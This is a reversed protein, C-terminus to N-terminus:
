GELVSLFFSFPFIFITRLSLIIILLLLFLSNVYVFLSRGKLKFSTTSSSHNWKLSDWSRGTVTKAEWIRSVRWVLVVTRPELKQYQAHIHAPDLLYISWPDTMKAHHMAHVAKTKSRRSSVSQHSPLNSVPTWPIDASSTGQITSGIDKTWSRGVTDWSGQLRTNSLKWPGTDLRPYRYPNYKDRTFMDPRATQIELNRINRPAHKDPRYRINVASARQERHSGSFQNVLSEDTHWEQPVEINYQASPRLSYKLATCAEVGAAHFVGLRPFCNPDNRSCLVLGDLTLCQSQILLWYIDRSGLDSTIERTDPFFSFDSTRLSRKRIKDDIGLREEVLNLSYSSNCLSARKMLGRAQLSGAQVQGTPDESVLDVDSGLIELCLQSGDMATETSNPLIRGDILAWSWSPARYSTPRTVLTADLVRWLLAHPLSNYWLGALYIDGTM